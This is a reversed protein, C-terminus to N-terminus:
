ETKRLILELDENGEFYHILGAKDSAILVGSKLYEWDNKPYNVSYKETDISCVVTGLCGNWLKVHDGVCVEKGDSYKMEFVLEIQLYSVGKIGM